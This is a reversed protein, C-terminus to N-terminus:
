NAKRIAKKGDAQSNVYLCFLQPIILPTQTESLSLPPSPPLPLVGLNGGVGWFIANEKHLNEVM